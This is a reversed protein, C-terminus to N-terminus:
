TSAKPATKSGFLYGVAASLTLWLEKPVDKGAILAILIGVLLVLSVASGVVLGYQEILLSRWGIRRDLYPIVDELYYFSKQVNSGKTTVFNTYRRNDEGLFDVTWISYSGFSDERIVQYSNNGSYRSNAEKVAQLIQDNLSAGM